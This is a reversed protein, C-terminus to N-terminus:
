ERRDLRESHSSIVLFIPKHMTIGSIIRFVPTPPGAQQIFRETLIDRHTKRIMLPIVICKTSYKVINRLRGLNEHDAGRVM